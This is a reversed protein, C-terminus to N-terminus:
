PLLLGPSLNTTPPLTHWFFHLTGSTVSDRAALPKFRLRKSAALAYRDADKLGSGSVLASSLPAGDGDVLVQVVSNTLVDSHPWSPWEARTLLKRRALPGEIRLESKPFELEASVRPQLGALAPMSEDGIRIPAFSNSAVYAAFESGLPEADLQLWKPEDPAEAFDDPISKFTLWGASSFGDLSPLAFVSPDSMDSFAALQELSWADAILHIGTKFPLAALPPARREGLVVILALQALFCLGILGIWRQRAWPRESNAHATM